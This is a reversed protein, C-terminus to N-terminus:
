RWARKITKNKNKNNNNNNHKHELVGNDRFPTTISVTDQLLMIPTTIINTDIKLPTEILTIIEDMYELYIARTTNPISEEKKIFNRIKTINTFFFTVSHPTIPVYEKNLDNILGPLYLEAIQPVYTYIYDLYRRRKEIKNEM